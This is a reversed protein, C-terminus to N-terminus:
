LFTSLYLIKQLGNFFNLIDLFFFIFVFSFIQRSFNSRELVVNYFTLVTIKKKYFFGKM